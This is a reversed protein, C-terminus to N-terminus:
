SLALDVAQDMTMARGEAWARALADADMDGGLGSLEADYEVREINTMGADAVERLVEAAGLLHAARTGDKRARAIFAVCELQNAIAGRNGLHGWAHITARYESEAEDIEGARRLAHALESRAVLQQRRDGTEDSRTWAERFWRRAEDLQGLYGSVRGEAIATFAIASPNGSRRAAETARDLRRRAAGIDSQAHQAAMGAEAFAVRSWMGTREGFAIFEDSFKSANPVDGRFVMALALAMLSEFLAVEDGASRALGEAREAWARDQRGGGRTASTTAAAALVRAVLISRERRAEPPPEDLSDALEIAQRYRDLAESGVWRSRWYDYMWVSLRLAAEPDSEHAWDLAARLNDVEPDLRDLWRAEDPGTLGGAAEAALAAFHRLHRTRVVPGEGTGVLRDRAYQRITELMRYRTAAGHEVEIMSRDVLRSLGDLTEMRAASLGAAPRDTGDTVPEDRTVAAAADLTWGGAFVSLRRLLRQDPEALLDWSWDILAQLTQQRPVATRRGGTLLGFRDGLGQAIERVSLVNVRAAALELALPIGDLRRCIEIAAPVEDRGLTFSPVTATAREVFLRVAESAEAAEIWALDDHDDLDDETVPNPLTLSPVPFIAEGPVGLAERSTALITLGPAHGLLDHALDAAATILHECNDLLLLLDKARLYDVMVEFLPRGPQEPLGLTRAIEQAVFAPDSIPALEVLWAGDAHRGVDEGAVQLMLRTKGTGGVGVLTVLRGAHLLSHVAALERERGVFTTAQVPLNTQRDELSRLPPLDRALGPATLQFIREPHDIDRLRHEGLDLLGTTPPLAAEAMAATVGSVLVQGGHGIALLRALRNLPPGFLDGDRSEVAGSHIAMRVRLAGIAPWDHRDLALQGELAAALAWEPRDFAALVGDGTGKVISGGAGEVAVRLIGDHAKLAVAMAERDSEWLRTSGEIDSLLFTATLSTTPAM